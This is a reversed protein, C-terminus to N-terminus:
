REKQLPDAGKLYGIEALMRMVEPDLDIAAPGGTWRMGAARAELGRDVLELLELMRQAAGPDGALLDQREGPDRKLDFLGRLPEGLAEGDFSVPLRPDYAHPTAEILKLGGRGVAVHRVFRDQPLLEGPREPDPLPTLDTLEAIIPLDLLEAPREGELLPVLSVGFVDAVPPLDCLELLTPMVDFLRAHSPVVLGKRIGPGRIVLPIRLVEDYLDIRHGKGGHEFFQEGHDSTLVVYTNDLLALEELRDLLRGIHHDVWRIEADYCALLYRYDAPNMDARIEPNRIFGDMSLNGRYHPAFLDVYERPANFDYHTDWHHLFLFFPEAAHEELFAEARAQITDATRIRHSETEMRALVKAAAAADLDPLLGAASSLEGCDEYLDFGRDFGFSRHLYPGGHFGATAYGHERFREALLTRRPDLQVRDWVVRHLADPLGTLLSMHAPLTWSTTSHVDAFRVGDAALRDIHPSTPPEYGYCGLHDPRLTDISVLIVNPPRSRGCGGSLSAIAFLALLAPSLRRGVPGPLLLARNLEEEGM